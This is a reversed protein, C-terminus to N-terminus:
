PKLPLEGGKGKPKAKNALATKMADEYGGVDSGKDTYLQMLEDALKTVEAETKCANFRTEITEQDWPTIEGDESVGEPLTPRQGEPVTLSEDAIAPRQGAQPSDTLLATVESVTTHRPQNATMRDIDDDTLVGLIIEPAHRRAWKTAGSYFLKQQPDKTWMQQSTKAQGVSIRICLVGLEQLDTYLNGDEGAALRKLLPWAEKPIEERSGFVVAALDDGKGGNYITGLPRKLGARSNIVAAVLKGQYGLKGSVVYTEDPLAFPDMQWRLAQNVLRFCNGVIMAEPLPQKNSGHTLHAPLLSASAMARAIRYCQEFRATDLMYGTAGDDKVVLKEPKQAPATLTGASM